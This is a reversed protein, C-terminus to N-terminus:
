DEEPPNPNIFSAFDSEHRLLEQLKALSRTLLVRTAGDTRQLRAAIERSPLGEVYRLKLAEQSEESLNKLAEQLRLARQNRFLAGSPSTMSVVLLDIFGGQVSESDSAPGASVERDSSRKQAAVLKRHADIIRHEALQCLWSFPDRDALEFTTLSGVASMSVEQVIDAAELKRGLSTSLNREIYALLQPRRLEIFEVLAQSDKNRIRAILADAVDDM